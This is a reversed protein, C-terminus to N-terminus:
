VRRQAKLLRYLALVREELRAPETVLTRAGQRALSGAQRSLTRRYEQAALSEYPDFWQRAPRETLEVVDRGLLGVVVPLHRPQLLRLGEALRGGSGQGYLDTLVIVLARHRVLRRVALLGCVLDTEEPRTRLRGLARRLGAVGPLGRQPPVQAELGGAVAVLGVRDDQAVAHEAFRAAANVYHGLLSLGALSMASTRGVDLVLMIELHQDESYVRTVPRGRRATAKWDIAHRPDGSRYDRLHHLERGSGATVARSDGHGASGPTRPSSQLLDPVVEVATNLRCRRPWWALGLPGRIRLALEEWDFRGLEEPLVAITSEARADAPLEVRGPTVPAALAAPLRPAFLINLTRSSDNHWHLALRDRRGLALRPTDAVVRLPAARTRLWEFALAAIMAAAALRWFPWIGPSSWQEVIGLLCILGILLYSTGTLNM